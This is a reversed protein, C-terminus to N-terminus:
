GRLDVGGTVLIVRAQGELGALDERVAAWSAAIPTKARNKAEIARLAAGM